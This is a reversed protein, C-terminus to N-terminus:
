RRWIVRGCFKRIRRFGSKFDVAAIQQGRSYAVAAPIAGFFVFRFASM